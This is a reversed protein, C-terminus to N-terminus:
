ITRAIFPFGNMRGISTTSGGHLFVYQYILNMKKMLLLLNTMMVKSRKNEGFGGGQM